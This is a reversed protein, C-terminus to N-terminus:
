VFRKNVKVRFARSDILDHNTTIRNTVTYINGETGGTLTVVAYTSSNIATNTVSLATTDVTSTTFSSVAWTSSSITDSGLWDTWKICYTLTASPDKEIYSGLLDQKFGTTTITM